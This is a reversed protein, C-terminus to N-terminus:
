HTRVRTVPQCEGKGVVVFPAWFMPRAHFPNDPNERMSIM